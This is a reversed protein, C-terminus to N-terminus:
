KLSLEVSALLQKLQQRQQDIWAKEAARQEPTEQQYRKQINLFYNYFTLAWKVVKQLMALRDSIVMEVRQEIKTLGEDRFKAVEEWSIDGFRQRWEEIKYHLGQSLNVTHSDSLTDLHREFGDEVETLLSKKKKTLQLKSKPDLLDVFSQAANFHRTDFAQLLHNLVEKIKSDLNESVSVVKGPLDRKFGDKDSWGISDRYQKTKVNLYFSEKLEEIQQFWEQKAQGIVEAKQQTALQQIRNWCGSIKGVEELMVSNSVEIVQQKSQWVAESQDLAKVCVILNRGLQVTAKLFEDFCPQVSDRLTIASQKLEPTWQGKSELLETSSQAIARLSMFYENM